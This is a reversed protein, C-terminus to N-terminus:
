TGLGTGRTRAKVLVARRKLLRWLRKERISLAKVPKLSAHEHSLYRRLLRADHADTKARPGVAERYSGTAELAIRTHFPLESLWAKIASPTNEVRVLVDDPFAVDLMESSVDIGLTIPQVLNAM